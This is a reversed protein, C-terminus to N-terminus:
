ELDRISSRGLTGTAPGGLFLRYKDTENTISFEEYKEYFATDNQLVISFYLYTSRGKTLQHIADNGAIGTNIL